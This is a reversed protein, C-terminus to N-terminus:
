RAGHLDRVSVTIPMTRPLVELEAVRLGVLLRKTHKAFDAHRESVFRVGVPQMGFLEDCNIPQVPCLVEM